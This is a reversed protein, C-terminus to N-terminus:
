PFPAYLPLQGFSAVPYLSHPEPRRLAPFRYWQSRFNVERNPKKNVNSTRGRDSRRRNTDERDESKKAKLHVRGTQGIISECSVLM